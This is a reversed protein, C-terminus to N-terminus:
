PLRVGAQQGEASHDRLPEREGQFQAIRAAQVGGLRRRLRTRFSGGAPISDKEALTENLGLNDSNRRKRRLRKGPPYARPRSLPTVGGASIDSYEHTAIRM